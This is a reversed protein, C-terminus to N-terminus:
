PRRGTTIRLNRFRRKTKKNVRRVADNTSEKINNGIENHATRNEQHMTSMDKRMATLDGRLDKINENNAKNMTWVGFYVTLAGVFISVVISWDGTTMGSGDQASAPVVSGFLVLVLVFLVNILTKM